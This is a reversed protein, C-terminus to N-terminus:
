DQHDEKGHDEGEHQPYLHFLVGYEDETAKQGPAEEGRAEGVGGGGDGLMCVEYLLYIEGPLDNGRPTIKARRTFKRMDRPSRKMKMSAKLTFNV